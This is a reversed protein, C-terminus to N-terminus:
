AKVKLTDGRKRDKMEAVRFSGDIKVIGIPNKTRVVIRPQLDDMPQPIIEMECGAMFALAVKQMETLQDPEYRLAALAADRMQDLIFSTAISM